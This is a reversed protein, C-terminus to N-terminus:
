KKGRLSQLRDRNMLAVFLAIFFLGVGLSIQWVASHRWELLGVAALLLAVLADYLWQVYKNDPFLIKVLKGGHKLLYNRLDEAWKNNISLLGLGALILPIGGPGPLWGLAIGAVILFYGAADIAIRKLNRKM